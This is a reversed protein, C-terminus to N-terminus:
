IRERHTQVIQKAIALGLGAGGGSRSRHVKCFREVIRTPHEASIGVGADKVSVLVEGRQVQQSRLTGELTEALTPENEVTLM